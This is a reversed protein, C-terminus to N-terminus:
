SGRPCSRSMTRAHTHQSRMSQAVAANAPQTGRQPGATLAAVPLRQLRLDRVACAGCLLTWYRMRCHHAAPTHTHAHIHSHSRSHSHTQAHIRTNSHTHTHPHIPPPHPTRTTRTTRYGFSVGMTGNGRQESANYQKHAGPPNGAPCGTVCESTAKANFTPNLLNARLFCNKAWYPENIWTVAVASSYSLLLAKCDAFSTTKAEHM